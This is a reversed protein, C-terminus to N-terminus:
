QWRKEGQESQASNVSDNKLWGLCVGLL